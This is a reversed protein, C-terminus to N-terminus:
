PSFVINFSNCLGIMFQVVTPQSYGLISMLKDSVWTKLSDDSGMTKKKKKSLLLLSINYLLVLPVTTCYLICWEGNDSCLTYLICYMLRIESYKTLFCSLLPESSSRLFKFIKYAWISSSGYNCVCTIYLRQM